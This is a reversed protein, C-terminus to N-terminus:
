WTAFYALVVPHGIQDSLRYRVEDDEVSPLEFDPAIEGASTQTDTTEALTIHQLPTDPDNTAVCVTSEVPEGDDTFTVFVRAREGSPVVTRDVAVGFRPDDSGAGSLVLDASGRNAIHFGVEISDGDPTEDDLFLLESLSPDADPARVQPDISYSLFQKWDAVLATRGRAAVKMAWEETVESGLPVPTVPERVDLVVVAEQTTGWLLGADAFVSIVAGGYDVEAVSAPADPEALDFVEIGAAGVAVYAFGDLISVDQAAGITQTAGVVTPAAPDGIDLVVLGQANDAVYARDGDAVLQWPNGLGDIRGIERPMTPDSIDFSVVEGAHTLVLLTEGVTLLGSADPLEISAVLEVAAVDIITLGLNRNTTAVHRETIRELTSFNSRPGGDPGHVWLNRIFDRQRVREGDYQAIFFGGTGVMYAMGRMWDVAVDLMHVPGQGRLNLRATRVLPSPPLEAPPECPGLAIRPAMDIPPAMDVVSADPDPPAADPPTEADLPAGRDPPTGTDVVGEDTQPMAHPPDAGGGDDCALALGAVLFVPGWRRGVAPRTM